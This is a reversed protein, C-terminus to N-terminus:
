QIILNRECFSTMWASNEARVRWGYQGPQLTFTFRCTNVLTDLLCAEPQHCSPTMIMLRYSTAGPLEDWLFTQEGFRTKVSDAPSLLEVQRRSIDKEFFDSCGALLFLVVICLLIRNIM